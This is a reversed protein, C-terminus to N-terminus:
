VPVRRRGAPDGHGRTTGASDADGSSVPESVPAVATLARRDAGTFRRFGDYRAVGTVDQGAFWYSERLEVPVAIQFRDDVRFSTVVIDSDSLVLETQLVRGGTEDIWVRGRAPLDADPVRRLVDSAGARYRVSEREIADARELSGGSPALFLISTSRSSM